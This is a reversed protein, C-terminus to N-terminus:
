RIKTLENILENIQRLVEALQLRAKWHEQEIAPEEEPPGAGRLQFARDAVILRRVTRKVKKVLRHEM